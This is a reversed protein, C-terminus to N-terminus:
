QSKKKRKKKAPEEDGTTGFEEKSLKGDADKDLSAFKSNAGDEGLKEKFAAIFETQTLVGDGDKDVVAFSTAAPANKKKDGKAAFVALPLAVAAVLASLLLRYPIKMTIILPNLLPLSQWDRSIVRRWRVPKM